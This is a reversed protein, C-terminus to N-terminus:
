PPAPSLLATRTELTSLWYWDRPWYCFCCFMVSLDCLVTFCSVHLLYKFLEDFAKRHSLLYLVYDSCPYLKNAPSMCNVALQIQRLWQGPTRPHPVPKSRHVSTFRRSTESTELPFEHGLLARLLHLLNLAFCIPLASQTLNTSRNQSTGFNLSQVANVYGRLWPGEQIPFLDMMAFLQLSRDTTALTQPRWQLLM